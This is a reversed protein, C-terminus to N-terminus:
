KAAEGNIFAEIDSFLNKNSKIGDLPDNWWKRNELFLIQEETFRKGIQKAPVGAVITYPDVDKTILSGAGIIAGDGIKVGGIASVNAGIWVDNGIVVKIKRISDFYNNEDFLQSNTFSFRYGSSFFCPHTSVWKKTPHTGFIICFNDGISCFRGIETRDCRCNNGLYSMIGIKAGCINTNAGIINYGELETKKNLLVNRNLIINKKKYYNKRFLSTIGIM